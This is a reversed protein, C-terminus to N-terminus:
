DVILDPPKLSKAASPACLYARLTKVNLVIYSNNKARARELELRNLQQVISDAQQSTFIDETVRWLAGERLRGDIRAISFRHAKKSSDLEAAAFRSVGPRYKPLGKRKSM